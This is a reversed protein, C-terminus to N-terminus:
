KGEAKALAKDLLEFAVKKLKLNYPHSANGYEDLAKLAEYMDPAASILHANAENEKRYASYNFGGATTSAILRMGCVIVTEDEVKWEGKTYNM